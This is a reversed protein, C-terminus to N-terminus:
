KRGSGDRQVTGKLLSIPRYNDCDLQNGTKFIPIVRCQKLKTPFEGSHLSLNFIHSLPVALVDGVFKILKTSVGNIDSSSKSKLKKIIKKVHEPTTNGLQMQPIPRGYDIYDEPRKTVPPVSNSIEQGINTFFENFHNAIKKSDNSVTGNINIQSVSDSKAKKGLLENLTQWTKKPNNANERLTDSIHLKKAARITRQYITKFLKYRNINQDSPDSAAKAFLKNKTRRSTLLGVTMFKNKSNFNKNFRKRKLPFNANYANIYASWFCDYANEVNNANLVPEWDTVSLDRKFNELNLLSFDRSVTSNISPSKHTDPQSCIFTFFHDSIDSIIVGSSINSRINNFHIHDIDSHRKRRV